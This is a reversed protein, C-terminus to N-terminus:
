EAEGDGARDRLCPQPRDLRGSLIGKGYKGEGLTRKEVCTGFGLVDAALRTPTAMLIPM